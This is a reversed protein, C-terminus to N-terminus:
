FAFVVNQEGYASRPVKGSINMAMERIVRTKGSGCAMEVIRAGHACADLCAKQCPWLAPVGWCNMDIEEPESAEGIHLLQRRSVAIHRARYHRLWRKSDDNLKCGRLTM